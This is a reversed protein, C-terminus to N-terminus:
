QKKCTSFYVNGTEPKRNTRYLIYAISPLGLALLIVQIFINWDLASEYDAQAKAIMVDEYKLISDNFPSFLVWLDYGKDQNLLNVFESTNDHEVAAKM